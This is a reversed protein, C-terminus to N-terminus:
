VTVRASAYAYWANDSCDGEADMVIDHMCAPVFAERQETGFHWSNLSIRKLFQIEFKRVKELDGNISGLMVLWEQQDNCHPPM